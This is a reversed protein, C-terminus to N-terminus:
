KLMSPPKPLQYQKGTENVFDPLPEQVVPTQYLPVFPASAQDKPLAIPDLKQSQRYDLSGNDRKALLSKTTSCGALVTVVSLVVSMLKLNKM